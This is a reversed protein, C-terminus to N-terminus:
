WTLTVRVWCSLLTTNFFLYCVGSNPIHKKKVRYVFVVSVVSLPKNYIFRLSFMFEVLKMLCVANAFMWTSLPHASFFNSIPNRNTKKTLIFKSILIAFYKKPRLKLIPIQILIFIWISIKFVFNHLITQFRLIRVFM